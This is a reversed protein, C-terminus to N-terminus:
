GQWDVRVIRWIRDLGLPIVVTSDCTQWAVTRGAVTVSAPKRDAADRIELTIRRAPVPAFTRATNTNPNLQEGNHNVLFAWTTDANVHAVVEVSGSACIVRVTPAPVLRALLGRFWEFQTWNTREEYDTFLPAELYWVAGDGMSRRTLAAFESPEDAAPGIGHGFRMGYDCDYPRIAPLVAEADRLALRHFRGRVLVPLADASDPWAPLYIHDQWPEKEREVGLWDLANGDVRPATGVVLVNGGGNVFDRLLAETEVEIAPTEPLILLKAEDVMDGLFCEAVLSVDAGADLALRHAGSVPVMGSRDVAFKSMDEGYMGQPGCLVLIERTLRSDDAPYEAAIRRQVDGMFRIARQSTPDLRNAPHLRDGIYPRCKRAWVAAAEQELGALPRPAWDGWGHNFITNMVDCPRDVNIGYASHLSAQLSQPGTTSFDCTLCTIGPPMREPFRVTGVWNFGVKADGKREAIFSCVTDVIRWARDRRFAGYAGGMTDAPSRPIPCGHKQEFEAECWKCHCVGMAGMTDFFFGDVPYAELIEAIMPLMLEGTYPTFPCLSIFGDDTLHPGNAGVQAWDNHRRGAEGDIGFSIYALVRVGEAKCARVVDGFADGVMRPHPSGLETPYYAFGTHCKAFTIIEDVGSERLTKAMASVDPAHNIRINKHSHFDFHWSLKEM